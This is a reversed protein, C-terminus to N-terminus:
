PPTQSRSHMLGTARAHRMNESPTVWELNTAAANSPDGDIHNVQTHLHTKPPDLFIRAVLTHLFVHRGELTLRPYRSHKVLDKGTKVASWGIAFRYKVRGMSSVYLGRLGNSRCPKWLETPLDREPTSTQWKYGAVKCRRGRVCAVIARCDVGMSAAAATASIHTAVVNGLDDVQEVKVSTRGNNAIVSLHRNRNQEASTAMRLNTVRNDDRV